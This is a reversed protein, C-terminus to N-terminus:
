SEFRRPGREGRFSRRPGHSETSRAQNVHLVRRDLETNDREDIANEAEADNPMTVFGFGKSRNTERDVIIKADSVVGFTEFTKRLTEDSTSYALNGVYIKM